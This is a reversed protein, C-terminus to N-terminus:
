SQREKLLSLVAQRTPIGAQGGRETAKLAAAAAAFSVCEPLAEGRALASAFAGHFVDGCGTTDVVPVAFARQHQPRDGDHGQAYWAGEAGCTVVCVRGPLALRRVAAVPDSEGTMQRAFDASVILHTVLGCLQDFGEGPHKEFDAVVPIGADRAIHAARTMGEVGFHDVFLVRAARILEEGPWDIQAGHAGQLDYFITRTLQGEDVIIISHIPRAGDIHKIFGVDIGERALCESVFQSLADNGLTGAYVCESGLRAAAVLATATLGGCQRDRRRVPVKAEPPPYEAVYLLDDIAVCGLGLVDYPKM